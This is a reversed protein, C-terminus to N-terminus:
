ANAPEQISSASNVPTGEDLPAAAMQSEYSRGSRLTRLTVLVFVGVFIVLAAEPWISLDVHRITDSLM